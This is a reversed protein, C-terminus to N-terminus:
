TAREEESVDCWIVLSSCPKKAARARRLTDYTGRSHNCPFAVVFDAYDVIKQNRLPGAAKGHTAWDAPFERYFRGIDAALRKALADVGTAGGSVITHYEEIPVTRLVLRKFEDYHTWHRSGVIALRM